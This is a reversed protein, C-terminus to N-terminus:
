LTPTPLEVAPEISTFPVLSAESVARVIEVSDAAFLSLLREQRALFISGLLVLWAGDPFGRAMDAAARLALKTKGVGGSGTLTLLRTTTLLRKVERLEQRRGVFSTVEAPLNSVYRAM